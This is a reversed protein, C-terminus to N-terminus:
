QQSNDSIPCCFVHVAEEWWGRYVEGKVKAAQLSYFSIFSQVHTTMVPSAMRVFRSILSSAKTLPFLRASMAGARGSVNVKFKIESTKRVASDVPCEKWLLLLVCQHSMLTAATMRKINLCIYLKDCHSYRQSFVLDVQASSGMSSATCGTPPPWALRHREVWQAWLSYSSSRKETTSIMKKKKFISNLM